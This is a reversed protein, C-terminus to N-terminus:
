GLLRDRLRTKVSDPIHDELIHTENLVAQTRIFKLFEEMVHPPTQLYHKFVENENLPRDKWLVRFLEYLPHINDQTLSYDDVITHDEVGLVDLLVSSAIGTRDKGFLCGYALPGKFEAVVKVFELWSTANKQFLRHYLELWDKPEPHTLSNFIPDETDIPLNIWEINKSLLEKPSGFREIEIPTRFDIYLKLKRDEHLHRATSASVHSVNGTRFVLGRRLYRNEKTRVGGIDRFNYLM